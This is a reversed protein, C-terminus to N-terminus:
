FRLRALRQYLHGLTNNQILDELTYGQNTEVMFDILLEQVDINGCATAVDLPIENTNNFKKVDAGSDLLLQVVDTDGIWAAVHLPSEGNVSDNNINMDRDVMFNVIKTVVDIDGIWVAVYLPTFGSVKKNVDAGSNLLFNVIHQKRNNVAVYLPTQGHEDEEDVDFNNDHEHENVFNQVDNYNNTFVVDIFREGQLLPHHLPPPSFLSLSISSLDVHQPTKRSGRRQTPPTESGKGEGPPTAM